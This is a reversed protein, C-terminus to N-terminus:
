CKYIFLVRFHEIFLWSWLWIVRDCFWWSGRFSFRRSGRYGLCLRNSFRLVLIQLLTQFPRFFKLLNNFSVGIPDAIQESWVFVVLTNFIDTLYNGGIIVFFWLKRWHPVKKLFSFEVSRHKLSTQRNNVLFVSLNLILFRNGWLDRFLNRLRVHLDVWFKAILKFLHHGLVGTKYLLHQTAIVWCVHWELTEEIQIIQYGILLSVALRAWKALVQLLVM